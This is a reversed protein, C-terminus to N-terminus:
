ANDPLDIIQRLKTIAYGVIRGSRQRANTDVVFGKKYINDDAERVEHKIEQEIMESGYILAKPKEDIEEIVVLEGTKDLQTDSKRSREFTMLVREYDASTTKDIEKSRDEIVQQATRADANSFQFMARVQREGDEYVAATLRHSALPDRAIAKTANYFDKLEGKTSPQEDKRNDIFSRVRAGWIRVFQELILMQDMLTVVGAVASLGALLDAEVSGSRVEKVFFQIDTKQNPFHDKVFREFENGLATFSGVFDALEIPESTDLKLTLHANQESMLRSYSKEVM